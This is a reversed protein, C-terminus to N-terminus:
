RGLRRTTGEYLRKFARQALSEILMSLGGMVLFTVAVMSVLIGILNAVSVLLSPNDGPYPWDVTIYYWCLCLLLFLLVSQLGKWWGPLYDM